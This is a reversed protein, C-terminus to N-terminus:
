KPYPDVFWGRSKPNELYPIGFNLLKELIDKYAIELEDETLFHWWYDGRKIQQSWLGPGLRVAWLCPPSDPLPLIDVDRDPRRFLNIAMEFIDQFSLGRLQIEIILVMQGPASPERIFWSNDGMGEPPHAEFKFGAKSLPDKLIKEALDIVVDHSLGM